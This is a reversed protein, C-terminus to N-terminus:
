RRARDWWVFAGAALVIGPMLVLTVVLIANLTGASASLPPFAITPSVSTKEAFQTLWDMANSWLAANAAQVVLDNRAWDVDGFVVLRANNVTNYAAWAISFPGNLDKETRKYQDGLVQVSRIQTAGFAKDSTRFLPTRVINPTQAAPVSGVSRVLTFLGTLQRTQAKDLYLIPHTSAPKAILTYLSDIYSGPDPDYVIDNDLTLGWQERLYKAFTSDPTLFAIDLPPNEANSYVYLNPEAMILARGGNGLYRTVRDVELATFDKKPALMVLATTEPPIDLKSLDITDLLMGIKQLGNWLYTADGDKASVEDHGATFLVRFRGRAQLLLLADAIQQEGVLNNPVAVIKGATIDPGGDAAIDTVFVRQASSAGFKQAVLPQQDPDVINLLVKGPAADQFMRLIPQDASQRDLLANTYFATIMAPRQMNKVLATVDPRLSYTRFATLDTVANASFALGYLLMVIGGVLLVLLVSNGSYRTQRRTLLARVDDPALLLWITLAGLGIVLFLFVIGNLERELLFLVGATLLAGIGIISNFRALRAKDM